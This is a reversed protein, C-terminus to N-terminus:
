RVVAISYRYNDRGVGRNLTRLVARPDDYPGQLYFPKGDRGFTIDSPGAWDGLHGAVAAFDLHPEFGLGRAYEVAGLVLHQALDLPAPVPEADFAAFIARRFAPLEHLDM